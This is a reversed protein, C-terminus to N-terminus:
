GVMKEIEEVTLLNGYDSQDWKVPPKIWDEGYLLSLYDESLFPIKIQLNSKYNFLREGVCMAKPIYIYKDGHMVFYNEGFDSAVSIDVIAPEEINSVSKSKMIIRLINGKREFPTDSMHRNIIVDYHTDIGMKSLYELMINADNQSTLFIDVDAVTSLNKGRFLTALSSGIVYYPLKLEEFIHVLKEMLLDTTVDRENSSFKVDYDPVRLIKEDPIDMSYLQELMSDIWVGSLAIKDYDVFELDKFSYIPKGDFYTGVISHNNDVFGVINSNNLSRYIARGACGVGFIIIKEKM